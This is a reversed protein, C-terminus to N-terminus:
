LRNGKSLNDKAPLLQLNCGVHLGSANAGKLPVIHDVHYELGLLRYASALEYMRNMRARDATGYDKAAHKSIHQDRQRHLISRKAQQDPTKTYERRYELHKDSLQFARTKEKLCATCTRNCRQRLGALDPHKVCVAGLYRAETLEYTM